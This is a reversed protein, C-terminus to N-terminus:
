LVWHEESGKRGFEMKETAEKIQLQLRKRVLCKLDEQIGTDSTHWLTKDFRLGMGLSLNATVTIDDLSSEKDLKVDIKVLVEDGEVSM